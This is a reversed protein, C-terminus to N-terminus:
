AAAIFPYLGFAGYVFAAVGLAVIAWTTLREAWGGLGWDLLVNRVGNLGHFLAFGLLGYDVVMFLTTRLRSAVAGFVIMSEPEAFHTVWLHTALIVILGVATLRQVIWLWISRDRNM